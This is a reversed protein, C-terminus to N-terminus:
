IYVGDYELLEELTVLEYGDNLLAPITYWLSEPTNAAGVSAHMLVIAGPFADNVVANSISTASIGTWDQTDISWQVAYEYGLNGIVELAQADYSGYPLRFFPYSSTGTSDQIYEEMLTIDYALTDSSVVTSDYHSYGHNAIQHGDDVIQALLSADADGNMFFTATVGFYDLVSLIESLNGDAHGDDFTLTVINVNTDVSYLLKASDYWYEEDFTCRMLMSKQTTDLM